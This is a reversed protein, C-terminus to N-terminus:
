DPIQNWKAISCLHGIGIAAILKMKHLIYSNGIANINM